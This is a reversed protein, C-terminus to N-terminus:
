NMVASEACSFLASRRQLDDGRGPMEATALGASCKKRSRNWGGSYILAERVIKSRWKRPMFDQSRGINHPHFFPEKANAALQLLKELTAHGEEFQVAGDQWRMFHTPSRCQISAQRM